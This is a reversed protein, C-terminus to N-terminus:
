AIVSGKITIDVHDLSDEYEESCGEYYVEPSCKTLEADIRM